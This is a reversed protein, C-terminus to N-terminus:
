KREAAAGIEQNVVILMDMAKQAHGNADWDKGQFSAQMEMYAKRAFDQAAALHPHKGPDVNLRPGQANVLTSAFIATATLAAISTLKM